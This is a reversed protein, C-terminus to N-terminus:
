TRAVMKSDHGLVINIKLAVQMRHLVQERLIGRVLFKETAHSLDQCFTISKFLKVKKMWDIHICKGKM